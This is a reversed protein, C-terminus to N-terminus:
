GNLDQDKIENLQLESALSMKRGATASVLASPALTRLTELLFVNKSRMRQLRNAERLEVRNAISKM